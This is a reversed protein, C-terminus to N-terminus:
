RRPKREARKMQEVHAKHAQMRDFLEKGPNDLASVVVPDFPSRTIKRGTEIPKTVPAKPASAPETTSASSKNSDTADTLAGALEADVMPTILVGALLLAAKTLGQKSGRALVDVQLRDFPCM